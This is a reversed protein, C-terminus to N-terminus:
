EERRGMWESHRWESKNDLIILGQVIIGTQHRKNSTTQKKGGLNFHSALQSLHLGVGVVGKTEGSDQRCNRDETEGVSM